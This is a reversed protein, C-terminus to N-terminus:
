PGLQRTAPAVLCRRVRFLLVADRETPRQGAGAAEKKPPVFLRDALKRGDRPRCAISSAWDESELSGMM